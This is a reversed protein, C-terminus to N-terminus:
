ISTGALVVQYTKTVPPWELKVGVMQMTKTVNVGSSEPNMVICLGPRIKNFHEVQERLQKRARPQWYRCCELQRQSWHPHRIRMSEVFGAFDFRNWIVYIPKRLDLRQNILKSGPPCGKKKGYNPCGMPHNYYPWSCMNRVRFDIVPTVVRWM